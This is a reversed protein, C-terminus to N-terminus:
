VGGNLQFKQGKKALFVNNGIEDGQLIRQRVCKKSDDPSM